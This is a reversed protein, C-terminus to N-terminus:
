KKYHENNEFRKIWNCNACLLQYRGEKKIFSVLARIYYANGNTNGSRKDDAGDGNIHDLQIARYDSFGCRICKGGMADFVAKKKKQRNDKEYEKRKLRYEARYEIRKPTKAYEKIAIKAKEANKPDSRYKKQYEKKKELM